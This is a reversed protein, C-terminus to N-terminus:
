IGGLISLGAGRQPALEVLRRTLFHKMIDLRLKGQSWQEQLPGAVQSGEQKNQERIICHDPLYSM